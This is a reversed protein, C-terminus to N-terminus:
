FRNLKEFYPREKPEFYIKSQIEEYDLGLINTASKQLPITNPLVPEKDYDYFWGLRYLAKLNPVVSGREVFEIEPYLNKFMDNMTKIKAKYDENSKLMKSPMLIANQSDKKIWTTWENLLGELTVGDNVLKEAKVPGIGHVYRLDFVAAGHPDTPRTEDALIKPQAEIKSTDVLGKINILKKEIDKVM